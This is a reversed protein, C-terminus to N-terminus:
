KNLLKKNFEQDNLLLDKNQFQLKGLTKVTQSVLELPLDAMFLKLERVDDTSLNHANSELRTTLEKLPGSLLDFRTEKNKSSALVRSKVFSYGRLIDKLKLKKESSKKYSLFTAAASSGIIGAYVEFREKDDMPEDELPAVMNLWARRDPTVKVEESKKRTVELMEKHETIFDAISGAGRQEAYIVFEESSPSFHLHCFRSLWAADSTDTVNMEECDYNGAAVIKWGDPLKHTHITKSTIFSFMAQLIDPHARNLEDLFIIGEGETPFWEPRSHAVIGPGKHTLLGVLDGVDQQTALHLHVFGLRMSDAMQKVVETKGVGQYGWLFPVVNHKLLIPLTEKIQKINM